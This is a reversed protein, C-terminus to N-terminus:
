YSHDETNIEPLARTFAAMKEYAADDGEKAQVGLGIMITAIEVRNAITAIAEIEAITYEASVAGPILTDTM